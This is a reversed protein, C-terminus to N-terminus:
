IWPAVFDGVYDFNGIVEDSDLEEPSFFTMTGQINHEPAFWGSPDVGAYVGQDREDMIGYLDERPYDVVIMQKQYDASSDNYM